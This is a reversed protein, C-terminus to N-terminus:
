QHAPDFSLQCAPNDVQDAQRSLGAARNGSVFLHLIDERPFLGPHKNLGAIARRPPFCFETRRMVSGIDPEQARILQAHSKAALRHYMSREGRTSERLTNYLFRLPQFAHTLRVVTVPTVPFSFSSLSRYHRCSFM